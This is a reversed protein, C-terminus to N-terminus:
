RRAGNRPRGVPRSAVRAHHIHSELWREVDSVSVLRERGPQCWSLHGARVADAIKRKTTCGCREAAAAYTIYEEGGIMM